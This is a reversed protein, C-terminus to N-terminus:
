VSSLEAFSPCTGKPVTLGAQSQICCKPLTSQSVAAKCNAPAGLYCILFLKTSPWPRFFATKRLAQTSTQLMEACQLDPSHAPETTQLGATWASWGRLEEEGTEGLTLLPLKLTSKGLNKKAILPYRLIRWLFAVKGLLIRDGLLPLHPDKRCPCCTTSGIREEGM